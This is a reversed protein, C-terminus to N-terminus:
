RMKMILSQLFNVNSYDKSAESIENTSMGKVSLKKVESNKGTWIYMYIKRKGRFTKNKVILLSSSIIFGDAKAFGGKILWVVAARVSREKVKLIRAMEKSTLPVEATKILELVGERNVDVNRM